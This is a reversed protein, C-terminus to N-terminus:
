EEEVILYIVEDDKKLLYKERAHREMFTTDTTLKEYLVKNKLIESEYYEKQKELTHLTKRMKFQYILRDQDFFALWIFFAILTYLYKFRIVHRLFRKM